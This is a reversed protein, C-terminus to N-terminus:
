KFQIKSKPPVHVFTNSAYKTYHHPKPSGTFGHGLCHVNYGISLKEVREGSRGEEPKSDEIDIIEM